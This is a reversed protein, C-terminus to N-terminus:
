EAREQLQDAFMSWAAACSRALDAVDPAWHGPLGRGLNELGEGDVTCHHLWRLTRRGAENLRLSPDESLKALLRRRDVAIDRQETRGAAPARPPRPPQPAPNGAPGPSPRYRGPVPDEGRGIRQRVDRVTAPSLGTARAVERLGAEPREQIMAAAQQRKHGSDLPRLRGDRGLRADAQPSRAASRARTRSVTKDSLGTAAAVARDSWQPHTTIIRAAAAARDAHSLPLGHTVNAKVALVFAAGEDCDLVRAPIVSRGNLLAARVRHTGDIVRMTPRHVTIPPLSDGAEALVRIHEQDEGGLRPSDQFVLCDIRISTVPHSEIWVISSVVEDLDVATFKLLQDDISQETLSM